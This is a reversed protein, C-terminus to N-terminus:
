YVENHGGIDLLDIVQIENKSFRWIIRIDPMAWSSQVKTKNKKVINHTRLSPYFPDKELMELTQDIKKEVIKSKKILKKYKKKFIKNHKLLFM